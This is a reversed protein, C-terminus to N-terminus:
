CTGTKPISGSSASIRIPTTSRQSTAPSRETSSPSIYEFGPIPQFRYRYVLDRANDAYLRVREDDRRSLDLGVPRGTRLVKMAGYALRALAGGAVVRRVQRLVIHFNVIRRFIGPDTTDLYIIRTIPFLPCLHKDQDDFVFGRDRVEQLATQVGVAV